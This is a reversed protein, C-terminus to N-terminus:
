AQKVYKENNAKIRSATTNEFVRDVKREIGKVKSHEVKEEKGLPTAKHLKDKLKKIEARAEVSFEVKDAKKTAMHKSVTGFGALIENKFSEFDEKTVYKADDSMEEKAVVEQAPAAAKAEVEEADEAPKMESIVGEADVVMMSGDELEYEGEALPVLDGEASKLFVANGPEFAEAELTDGNKAKVEAFKEKSSPFLKNVLETLNSM